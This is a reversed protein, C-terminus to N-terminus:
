TAMGTRINKNHKEEIDGDFLMPVFIVALAIIVAAGIMRQKLEQDM